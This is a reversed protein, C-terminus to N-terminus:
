KYNEVKGLDGYCNRKFFEVSSISSWKIQSWVKSDKNKLKELKYYLYQKKIKKKLSNKKAFKQCRDVRKLNEYTKNSNTFFPEHIKIVILIYRPEKKRYICM